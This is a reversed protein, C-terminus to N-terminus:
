KFYLRTGALELAVSNVVAAHGCIRFLFVPRDRCGADLDHRTPYRGILDHEWGHGVIWRKEPNAAAYSAIRGILEEISRCDQFFAIIGLLFYYIFRM